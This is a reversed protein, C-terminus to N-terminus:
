GANSEAFASTAVLKVPSVASGSNVLSVLSEKRSVLLNTCDAISDANGLVRRIGCLVKELPDIVSLSHLALRWFRNISAADEDGAALATNGSGEAFNV